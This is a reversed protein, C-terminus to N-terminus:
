ERYLNKKNEISFDV